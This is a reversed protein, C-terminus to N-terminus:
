SINDGYIVTNMVGGFSEKMTIMKELAQCLLKPFNLLRLTHGTPATDFIVKSFHSDNVMKSIYGLTMAEDIGPISSTLEAM